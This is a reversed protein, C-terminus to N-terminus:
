LVNIVHQSPFAKCTAHKFISFSVSAAAWLGGPVARGLKAPYLTKMHNSFIHRIAPQSPAVKTELRGAMREVRASM